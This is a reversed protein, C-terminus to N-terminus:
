EVGHFAKAAWGFILTVAWCVSGFFWESEVMFDPFPAGYEDFGQWTLTCIGIAAGSWAGCAKLEDQAKQKKTMQVMDRRLVKVEKKVERSEDRSSKLVSNTAAKMRRCESLQRWVKTYAKKTDAFTWGDPHEPLNNWDIRYGRPM